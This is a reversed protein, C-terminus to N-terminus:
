WYLWIFSFFCFSYTACKLCANTALMKLKLCGMVTIANHQKKCSSFTCQIKSIHISLFYNRNGTGIEKRSKSNHRGWWYCALIYLVGRPIDFAPCSTVLFFSQSVSKKYLQGSLYDKIKVGQRINQETAWPRVRGMEGNLVEGSSFAEPKCIPYIIFSTGTKIVGPVSQVKVRMLIVLSSFTRAIKL